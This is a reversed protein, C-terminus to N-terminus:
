SSTTKNPLSIFINLTWKINPIDSKNLQIEARLISIDSMLSHKLITMLESITAKVVANM